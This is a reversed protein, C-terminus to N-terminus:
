FFIIGNETVKAFIVEQPWAFVILFHWVQQNCAFAFTASGCHFNHSSYNRPDLGIATVLKALFTFFPKLYTAFPM